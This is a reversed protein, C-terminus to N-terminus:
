EVVEAETAVLKQAAIDKTSVGAQILQKQQTALQVMMKELNKLGNTDPAASLNLNVLPAAAAPPPALHTLLSNAASMAVMESKADLLEVQKNLAKQRADQNLVWFPVLTQELILNVLKGKAYMSAYASIEKEEAGRAMLEQYRDPFTRLYSEKNSYNMLKFSVFKIANFYDEVKFRGEQLVKTYSLFNGRMAEAMEPDTAVNNLQDVLEQTVSKKLNPPVAQQVLEISLM